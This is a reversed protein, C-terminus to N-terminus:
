PHRERERLQNLLSEASSTPAGLESSSRDQVLSSLQNVYEEVTSSDLEQIKRGEAAEIASLLSLALRRSENSEHDGGKAIISDRSMQNLLFRYRLIRMALYASEISVALPLSKLLTSLDASM